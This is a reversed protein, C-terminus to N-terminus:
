NVVANTTEVARAVRSDVMDMMKAVARRQSDPVFQTYIDMTTSIRSHRMQGQVAKPDAGAEVLWTAYSRRLVQWNVWGIGLKRGVPKIHRSLINHDSMPVGTLLSQFVIDGPADSRVINFTKKAGKGGWNITVEMGKLGLIRQVVREDVGITASSANTKPCGWEGRSFREDITLSEPHVDEWKLGILESVRLGALVCVYVMTAYPEAMLNVLADFQEPTIYPKNSKGTRAPPLQVGVLPSKVLLGFRVASGLVSALVDKIKSATAHSAKMGSFYKQLTMTNMDRLSTDTFMPLLHKDLYCEYNKRTTTALLPLVTSRYTSSVYTGFDTASGIMELGQNMPRLMESAIKRAERDSVAAPAVKMRKKKRTFRGEIFEDQWPSIWWWNGERFPKPNQFRRRAMREFDGKLPLSSNAEALVIGRGHQASPESNHGLDQM